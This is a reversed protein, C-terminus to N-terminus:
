CLLHFSLEWLIWVGSHIFLPLSVFTSQLVESYSTLITVHSAQEMDLDCFWKGIRSQCNIAMKKYRYSANLWDLLFHLAFVTKNGREM